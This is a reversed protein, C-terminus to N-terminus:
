GLNYDLNRLLQSGLGTWGNIKREIGTKFVGYWSATVGIAKGEKIDKIM